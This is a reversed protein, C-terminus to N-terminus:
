VKVLRVRFRYQVTIDAATTNQLKLEYTVKTGVKVLLPTEFDLGSLGYANLGEPYIPKGAVYVWVVIGTNRTIAVSIICGVYGDPVVDKVVTPTKGAKVTVSDAYLKEEFEEAICGSIDEKVVPYM